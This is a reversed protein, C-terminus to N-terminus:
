TNNLAGSTGLARGSNSETTVNLTASTRLTSGSVSAAEDNRGNEENSAIYEIEREIGSAHCCEKCFSQTASAGSIGPVSGAETARSVTVCGDRGESEDTKAVAGEKKNAAGDLTRMSRGDPVAKRALIREEIVGLSRAKKNM